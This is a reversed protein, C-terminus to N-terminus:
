LTNRWERWTRSHRLQEWGAYNGLPRPESPHKPTAVGEFPAWHKPTADWLRSELQLDKEISTGGQNGYSTRAVRAVSARRLTTLDKAYEEKEEDTIYPLHWEGYLLIDPESLDLAAKMLKALKQFEPQADPHIRQDFINDWCEETASIVMTQWLFPELVRNALQKHLGLKLLLFASLCAALASLRWVLRALLRKPASLSKKSVMGRQNAGWEEPIFPDNFAERIRQKTGLARSSSASKSAMRYTNVEPLIFRPFRCEMTTLRHGALSISDAVINAYYMDERSKRRSM